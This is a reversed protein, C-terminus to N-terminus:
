SLVEFSSLLMVALVCVAVPMSPWGDLRGEGSSSGAPQDLGHGSGHVQLRHIDALLEAQVAGQM